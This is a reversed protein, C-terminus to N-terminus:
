SPFLAVVVALDAANLITVQQVLTALFAQGEISAKFAWEMSVPLRVHAFGARRLLRADANTVYTSLHEAGYGSRSQAFWHSLNAGRALRRDPTPASRPSCASCELSRIPGIAALLAITVLGVLWRTMRGVWGEMRGSGAQTATNAPGRGNGHPVEGSKV